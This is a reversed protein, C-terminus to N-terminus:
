AADIAHIVLSMGFREHFNVEVLCLLQLQDRLEIGTENRFKALLTGATNAWIIGKAEACIGDGYEEKEILQLYCHGRNIKFSTVEAQVWYRQFGFQQRIVGAIIRNLTRLTVTQQAEFM